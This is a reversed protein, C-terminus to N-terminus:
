PSVHSNGKQYQSNELGARRHWLLDSPALRQDCFQAYLAMM